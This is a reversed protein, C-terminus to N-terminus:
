AFYRTRDYNKEERGCHCGSTHNQCGHHDKLLHTPHSLGDWKDWSGVNGSIASRTPCDVLFRFFMMDPISTFHPPFGLVHLVLCQMDYPGLVYMVIWYVFSSWTCPHPGLVHILALYMSSPWICPHPGLVHILALYMSSPWTCPHPGLVCILVLYVSSSWTCLHPGLIYM